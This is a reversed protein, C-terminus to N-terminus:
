KAEVGTLVPPPPPAVQVPWAASKASEVGAITATLRLDYLGPALGKGGSGIPTALPAVAAHVQKGVNLPDDWYVTLNQSWNVAPSPLTAIPVQDMTMASVGIPLVALPTATTPDAGSAYLYATAADIAPM